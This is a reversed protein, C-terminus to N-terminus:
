SAAGDESAGILESRDSVGLADCLRAFAEPSCSRRTGRELHGIYSSDLKARRGLAGQNMGSVQRLRRLKEGDIVVHARFRRRDPKTDTAM